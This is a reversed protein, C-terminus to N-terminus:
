TEATSKKTWQKWIARFSGAEDRVGKYYQIGYALTAGALAAQEMNFRDVREAVRMVTKAMPKALAPILLAIALIPRSVPNVLSLFHLPDANQLTDHTMSIKWDLVGYRRSTELWADFDIHDSRNISVADSSFVIKAGAKQFRLGLERDENQRLTCDFGGVKEYLERRFSVNGTYLNGGQIEYASALKATRRNLQHQQFRNHLPKASFDPAQSIRGMVVDVGPQHADLHQALFDPGVTMDDDVIVIIPAITNQIGLHRSTAAGANQQRLFTLKYPSQREGLIDSIPVLSGDDVVAVEFQDAPMTQISFNDLLALLSPGRNYTAIVVSLKYSVPLKRKEVTVM